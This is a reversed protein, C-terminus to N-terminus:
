AMESFYQSFFWDFLARAEWPGPHAEPHFQVSLLQRGPWAFGALSDDNLNTMWLPIEQPLSAREVAYGHNHAAVYVKGLVEDRIPHNGGRHGYRLKYTKGGLALSLLQHGMCIAFLPKQSKLLAQITSVAQEVDAPDGPGNSLFYGSCETSLIESATARSPFVVLECCRRALEQVIARKIGFDLVALRPGQPNNGPLRYINRTSVQAVWDKPWSSKEALLSRAKAIAREANEEAVIAGWMVGRERLHLVLSRTDVDFLIPIGQELLIERLSGAPGREETLDVCICAKAWVRDSQAEEGFVGYNGIQPATFVMMQGWYSPDTLIEYYGSHSTNFVVEGIVSDTGILQGSFCSGDDLVLFGRHPGM